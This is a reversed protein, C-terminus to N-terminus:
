EVSNELCFQKKEMIEYITQGSQTEIYSLFIEQMSVMEIDLLAM